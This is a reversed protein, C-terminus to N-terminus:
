PGLARRPLVSDHPPVLADARHDSGVLPDRAGVKAGRIRALIEIAPVGGTVYRAQEQDQLVPAQQFIVGDVVWFIAAIREHQLSRVVRRHQTFTRGAGFPNDVEPGDGVPLLGLDHRDVLPHRQISRYNGWQAAETGCPFKGRRATRVECPSPMASANRTPPLLAPWCLRMVIKWSFCSADAASCPAGFPT